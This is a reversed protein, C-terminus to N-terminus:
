LAHSGGAQAGAEIWADVEDRAYIIIRGLNRYPPGKREYRWMALTNKSVGPIAAAVEDPSMYDHSLGSAGSNMATTM